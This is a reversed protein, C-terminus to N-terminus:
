GGGALAPAKPELGCAAVVNSPAGRAIRHIEDGLRQSLADAGVMLERMLPTDSHDCIVDWGDNGYVLMIRGVLQDDMRRVILFEEDCAGIEAMIASLERTRPLAVSEGDHVTISFSPEKGSEGSTAVALIDQVARRVVARELLIRRRIKVDVIRARQEFYHQDDPEIYEGTRAQNDLSQFTPEAERESAKATPTNM